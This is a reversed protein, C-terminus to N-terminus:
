EAPRRCEPQPTGSTRAGRGIASAAASARPIPHSGGGDTGVGAWGRITTGRAATGLM